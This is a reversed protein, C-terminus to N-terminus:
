NGVAQVSRPEKVKAGAPARVVLVPCSAHRLCGQSVSGLLATGIRGRDHAGVVLMAAGRSLRSLAAAPTGEVLHTTAHVGCRKAQAAARELLRRGALRSDPTGALSIPIAIADSTWHWVHVLLLRRGSRKSEALSWTLAQQSSASRDLGVVITDEDIQHM